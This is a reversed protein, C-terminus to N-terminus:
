CAEKERFVRSKYDEYFIGEINEEKLVSQYKKQSLGYVLLTSPRSVLMKTKLYVDDYITRSRISGLAGVIFMTEKPYSNLCGLTDLDGIRWNPVIKISGKVAIYLTLMQSILINLRQQSSPWFINPSLDFGGVGLYEKLEMLYRDPNKMFRYLYEDEEFFCVVAREKQIANKRKTFPVIEGPIDKLLVEEPFVPFGAVNFDIGLNKLECYLDNATKILNIKM